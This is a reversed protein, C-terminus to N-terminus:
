ERSVLVVSVTVEPLQADVGSKTSPVDEALLACEDVRQLVPKLQKDGEEVENWLDIVVVLSERFAQSRHYIVYICLVSM